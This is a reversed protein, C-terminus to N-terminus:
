AKKSRKLEKLRQMLDSDYDEEDDEPTENNDTELAQAIAEELGSEDDSEEDIEPSMMKNKIMDKADSLPMEQHETKEIAVIPSKPRIREGVQDDMESMLKELLQMKIEKEKARDIM